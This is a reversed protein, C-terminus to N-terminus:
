IEMNFFFMQINGSIPPKVGLDDMKNIPNEIIFGNM